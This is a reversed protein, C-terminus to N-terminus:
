PAQYNDRTTESYLSKFEVKYALCLTDQIEIKSIICVPTLLWSEREWGVGVLVAQQVSGEQFLLKYGYSFELSMCGEVSIEVM